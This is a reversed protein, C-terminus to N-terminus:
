SPILCETILLDYSCNIQNHVYKSTFKNKADLRSKSDVKQNIVDLKYFCKHRIKQTFNNEELLIKFKSLYANEYALFYISGLTTYYNGVRKQIFPQFFQNKIVELSENMPLDYQTPMTVYGVFLVFFLKRCNSNLEHKSFYYKCKEDCILYLIYITFKRQTNVVNKGQISAAENNENKSNSELLFNTDESNYSLNSSSFNNRNDDM